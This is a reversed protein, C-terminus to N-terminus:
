KTARASRRIEQVFRLVSIMKKVREEPTLRLNERILTRDVDRKYAEIVPCPELSVWQLKDVMVWDYVAFCVDVFARAGTPGKSACRALKSGASAVTSGGVRAAGEVVFLALRPFSARSSGKRKRSIPKDPLNAIFGPRV